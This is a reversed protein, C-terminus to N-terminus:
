ESVFWRVLEVVTQIQSAPIVEEDEIGLDSDWKLYHIRAPDEFELELSRNGHHWELQLRGRTMPVVRPADIVGAPLQETLRRAADIIAPDIPEAGYGNWGARLGRLEDLAHCTQVQFTANRQDTSM